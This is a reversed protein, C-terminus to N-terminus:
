LLPKVAGLDCRAHVPAADCRNNHQPQTAKTDGGEPDRRHGRVRRRQRFPQNDLREVQGPQRLLQVVQGLM